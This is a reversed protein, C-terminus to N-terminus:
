KEELKETKTFKEEDSFLVQSLTTKQTNNSPKQEEKQPQQSSTIKNKLFFRYFPKVYCNDENISKQNKFEFNFFNPEISREVKNLFLASKQFTSHQFYFEKKENEPYDEISIIKKTKMEEKNVSFFWFRFNKEEDDIKKKDFKKYTSFLM